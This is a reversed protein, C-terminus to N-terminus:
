KEDDSDISTYSPKFNLARFEVFDTKKTKKLLDDKDYSDYFQNEDFM